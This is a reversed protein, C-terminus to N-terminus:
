VVYYQYLKLRKIKKLNIENTCKPFKDKLINFYAEPLISSFLVLVQPLPMLYRSIIDKAVIYRKTETFNHIAKLRLLKSYLEGSQNLNFDSLYDIFKLSTSFLKYNLWFGLQHDPKEQKFKIM